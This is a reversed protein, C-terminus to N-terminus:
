HVNTLNESIETPSEHFLFNVSGGRSAVSLLQDRGQLVHEHMLRGARAAEGRSVADAIMGHFHVSRSMTSPGYHRFAQFILTHDISHELSQALQAHRACALLTSHFQDNLHFVHRVTDVDNRDLSSAADAFAREAHRLQTVQDPTAREAALEAVMAELRSRLEYLDTIDDVTLSRVRAGRHPIFEVLGEAQLM